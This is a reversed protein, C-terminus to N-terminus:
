GPSAGPPDAVDASGDPEPPSVSPPPTERRPPAWGSAVAPPHGPPLPASRVDVVGAAGVPPQIPQDTPPGWISAETPAAAARRRRGVALLVGAVVLGAAAAVVAWLRLDDVGENPHRGIAAVTAADDGVVAIRYRGAATIALRAVSRGTRDGADYVLTRYESVAVDGQDGSVEVDFARGPEAAPECDGAPPVVEGGVEEFVYFTGTETFELTTTCGVPARAFSDITAAPRRVSLVLLASAVAMGAVLAFGGFAILVGGRKAATAM